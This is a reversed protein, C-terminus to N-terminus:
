VGDLGGQWAGLVRASAPGTARAELLRADGDALLTLELRDDPLLSPCRSAWEVAAVGEPAGLLDAVGLQYLEEPDDIRYLDVHDLPLRGEPHHHTIAFSPSQVRVSEPIGLGRALGQVAQGTQVALAQVVDNRKQLGGAQPFGAGRVRAKERKPFSRSPDEAL